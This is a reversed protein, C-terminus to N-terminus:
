SAAAALAVSAAHAVEGATLTSGRTTWREVDPEPQRGRVVDLTARTRAIDGALGPRASPGLTWGAVCCTTEDAGIGALVPVVLRLATTLHTINGRERYTDLVDRFYAAAVMPGDTEAVAAALSCRSVGGVFTSGVSDSIAIASGYCPIADGGGLAAYADGRAFALWARETPAMGDEPTELIAATAAAAGAADGAYTAALARNSLGIARDRVAGSAAASEVLRSAWTAAEDLRHEYIGVDSLVELAAARVREDGRELADLARTRAEALRSEQAAQSALAVVVAPHDTRHELADAWTSPEAWMRSYAYLHLAATLRVALDVDVDRAWTHAARAEDALRDFVVAGQAERECRLDADAAELLTTVLVAHRGAAAARRASSTRGDVARRVTRLVQYRRGGRGEVPSLLSRDALSRLVELADDTALLRVADSTAFAGAFASLTVLADADRSALRDLSGEVLRALSRHREPADRRGTTVASASSAVVVQLEPVDLLASMSALMELALPLRDVSDALADLTSDPLEDLMALPAADRARAVLLARAADPSLPLVPWIREARVGLRERCTVVITAVGAAAAVADCLAAVDAVLLDADDLLVIVDRGALTKALLDPGDDVLGAGRAVAPLLQASDDLVTLDVIYWAVGRREAARRVVERALTSKGVGGTGVLTVLSGPALRDLLEEVDRDRGVLTPAAPSAVRSGVEAVFQYGRGRVTRVVAQADGDDGTARRIEKIRTSLASDSIFRGGWVADLIEEKPVVRHRQDVLLALVDFAQPELHQPVGGRLLVRGAVDVACDRFRLM